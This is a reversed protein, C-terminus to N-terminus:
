IFYSSETFKTEGNARAIATEPVILEISKWQGRIMSWCKATGDKSGSLFRLARHAWVLTDV